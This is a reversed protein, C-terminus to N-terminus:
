TICYKRTVLSASDFQCLVMVYSGRTAVNQQSEFLMTSSEGM